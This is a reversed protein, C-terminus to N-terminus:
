FPSIEQWEPFPLQVNLTKQKQCSGANDGATLTVGYSGNQAYTHKPNQSSSTGTDGFNWSFSQNTSGSAFTAINSPCVGTQARSCFQIEEQGSPSAPSWTFDPAPFTHVPTAFSSGQAWPSEDLKDWVKVRWYYTKNFELIGSVPSYETNVGNQKGTDDVIFQPQFNQNTAIQVQWSNQPDGDQDSFQWPLTIHAYTINCYSVATPTQPTATPPSNAFVQITRTNTAVSTGRSVQTKATYTSPPSYQCLDRVAFTDPATVKTYTNGDGPRKIWGPDSVSLNINDRQYEWTANNTCDFKFNALGTATGAVQSSLDFQTNISGSVPDATLTVSLSEVTVTTAGWGTNGPTPNADDTCGFLIDYQGTGPFTNSASTTCAGGNECPIPTFSATGTNWTSSGVQRWFFSCSIIKGIPDTLSANFTTSVGSQAIVPAPTGVQPVTFDVGFDFSKWGSTNGAGDFAQSRVRCRNQGEFRCVDPSPGVAITKTDLDCARNLTGSTTDAGGPNLGIYEYQCTAAFGSGGLDSDDFTASFNDRWWSSQAPSTVATAPNQKDVQVRLPSSENTQNSANDLVHLGYWYDASASLGTDTYSATDTSQTSFGSTKTLIPNAQGNGPNAWEGSQLVHDGNADWARWVEIQKLNAGGQDLVSWSVVADLFANSVWAPPVPTRTFSSIVPPTADVLFMGSKSPSCANEDDCVFAYYNKTGEDAAQTTYNCSSPSTSSFSATDCWSGGSCTQGSISNTKCIHTKTLDGTDPDNWNVTFTIQANAKIPDPLATPNGQITPFGNHQMRVKIPGRVTRTESDSTV